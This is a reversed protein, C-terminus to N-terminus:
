ECLKEIRVNAQAKLEREVLVHEEITIEHIKLTKSHKLPRVRMTHSLGSGM